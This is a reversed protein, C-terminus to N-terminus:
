APVLDYAHRRHTEGTADSENRVIKAAVAIERGPNTTFRTAAKEFLAATSNWRLFMATIGAGVAIDFTEVLDKRSNRLGDLERMVDLAQGTPPKVAEDDCFRRAINGAAGEDHIADSYALIFECLMIPSAPDNVFKELAGYHETLCKNATRLQDARQKFRGIMGDVIFAIVMMGAGIVASAAALEHTDISM